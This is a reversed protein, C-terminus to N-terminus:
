NLKKWEQNTPNHKNYIQFFKEYNCINSLRIFDTALEQINVSDCLRSIAAEKVKPDYWSVHAKLFFSGSRM